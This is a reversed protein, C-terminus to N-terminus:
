FFVKVLLGLNMTFQQSLGEAKSEHFFFIKVLLRYEAM